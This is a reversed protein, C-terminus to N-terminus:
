ITSSSSFCALRRTAETSLRLLNELIFSASLAALSNPLAEFELTVNIVLLPSTIPSECSSM